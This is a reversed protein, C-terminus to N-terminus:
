IKTDDNYDAGAPEKALPLPGTVLRIYCADGGSTKSEFTETGLSSIDLTSFNIDISYREGSRWVDKAEGKYFWYNAGYQRFIDWLLPTDAGANMYTYRGAAYRKVATGVEKPTPEWGCSAPVPNAIGGTAGDKRKGFGSSGIPFFIQNGNEMNYAIVGRMGYKKRAAISQQYRYAVDISEATSTADDAYLVGFSYKTKKFNRLNVFDLVSMMRVNNKFYTNSPWASGKALATIKAWTSKTTSGAITLNTSTHDKFMNPKVERWPTADPDNNSAAIPQSFNGWRFLSGEDCPNDAETDSTVLNGTHWAVNLNPDIKIPAYGQRVFIRHVCSYNHYRVVIVGCRTQTDNALIGAPQYTFEIPEDMEGYIKRRGGNLLIWDSGVEVEASWGGTRSTVTTFDSTATGELYKLSVHFPAANNWKRWIATPNPLKSVQIINVTEDVPHTKGKIDKVMFRVRLQARRQYCDYPNEGSYGTVKCLSRNRTYLPIYVTTQRPITTAALKNSNYRFSGDQTEANEKTAITKNSHGNGSIAGVDYVRFGLTRKDKYQSSFNTHNLYTTDSYMSVNNVATTSVPRAMDSGGSEGKWIKWLYDAAVAATGDSLKSTSQFHAGVADGQTKRLSLFGFCIDRKAVGNPHTITGNFYAHYSGAGTSGGAPKSDKWPLSPQWDNRIIEVSIKNDVIDGSVTIPFEAVENYGYAVYYEGPMSYPPKEYDYEVHWDVDNANGRFCMTLKYHHNRECDYDDIVDKGLMFRYIIRGEGVNNPELSHYYGIVEVYTGARVGDKYNPDTSNWSDPSDIVGDPGNDGDIDPDKPKDPQKGQMNEYFYLCPADNRHTVTRLFDRDVDANHDTNDAFAKITPMGPTLTLWNTHNKEEDGVTAYTNKCLRIGHSHDVFIGGEKDYEASPVNKEMLPCGLPIDRLRIEKIFVTTSPILNSADFTVTVKSALRRLWCHLEKGPEIYVSSEPMGTYADDGSLEGETVIGCMERNNRYNSNDWSRHMKRFTERKREDVPLGDFYDDLYQKTTQTIKTDDPYTGLNAVAYIYYRGAPLNVRYTGRKTKVEGEDTLEGEPSVDADTREHDKIHTDDVPLEVTEVFDGNKDFIVLCLDSPNGMIGIGPFNWAPDTVARSELKTEGFPMFDLSLTVPAMGEAAPDDRYIPDDECSTLAPALLMAAMAALLHLFIYRAFKAM